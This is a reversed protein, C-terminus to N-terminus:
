LGGFRGQLLCQSSGSSQSFRLSVSSVKFAEYTHARAEGGHQSPAVTAGAADQQYVDPIGLGAGLDGVVEPKVFSLPARAYAGAVGDGEVGADDGVELSAAGGFEEVVPEFAGGLDLDGAAM